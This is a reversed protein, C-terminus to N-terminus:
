ETVVKVEEVSNITVSCERTYNFSFGDTEKESKGLLSLIPFSDLNDGWNSSQMLRILHPCTVRVGYM